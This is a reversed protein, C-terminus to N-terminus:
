GPLSGLAHRPAPYDTAPFGPVIAGGHSTAAHRSPRPAARHHRRIKLAARVEDRLEDLSLVDVLRRWAFERRKSKVGRLHGRRELIALAESHWLLQAIAFPDPNPNVDAARVISLAVGAEGQDIRIIGWWRPVRARRLKRETTVLWARDLVQSYRRCQRPWRDLTDTESKIEYGALEGNVLVVDVRVRGECLGLEDLVLSDDKSHETTLHARLAMRVDYDHMRPSQLVVSVIETDSM